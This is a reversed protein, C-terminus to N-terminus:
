DVRVSIASMSGDIDLTARGAGIVFEGPGDPAHGEPLRIESRGLNVGAKVRVDSAPDLRVSTAGMDCSIRSAGEVLRTDISLSGANVRCQLPGRVDRLTGAGADLDLEVPGDLGRLSVSGAAVRADVPLSPNVRITVQMRRRLDPLVSRGGHRRHIAFTRRGPSGFDLDLDLDVDLDRLPQCRVVVTDGDHHLDHAGDVDVIAVAPDGIVRVSGASAEIRVRTARAPQDDAIVEGPEDFLRSAADEASLEGSAVAELIARREHEDM